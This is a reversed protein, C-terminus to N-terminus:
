RLTLRRGTRLRASYQGRDLIVSTLIACMLALVVWHFQLVYNTRLRMYFSGPDVGSKRVGGKM